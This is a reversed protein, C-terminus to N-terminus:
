DPGPLAASMEAALELALSAAPSLSRGRLWIAHLQISLGPPKGALQLRRLGTAALAVAHPLLVLADSDHALRALTAFDDCELRIPLAQTPALGFGQRLMERLTPSASVTAIGHELLDPLALERRGALVHGSRCYLGGHIAGLFRTQLRPDVSLMRPDAIFFDIQEIHLLALLSEGHGSRVRTMVDPQRRQLAVLLPPVITAAPVPGVGFSLEGLAGSRLLDLDRDFCRQEFLLQRAREAVVRGAATLQAGKPGRDFLRLGIRAELAQISRSFAAQSLHVQEAAVVFRGTDALTILHKLQRLDM